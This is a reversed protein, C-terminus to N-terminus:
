AGGTRREHRRQSVALIGVTPWGIALALWYAVLRYVLVAAVTPAAPAGYAVLVVALGGEVLGLGGPAFPLVALIQALGYALFVGRWPIPAAVSRFAALLCLADFFWASAAWFVVTMQGGRSLRVARMEALLRDLRTALDGRPHGTVRRVARLLSTVLRILANRRLLVASAGLVVVLLVVTVALGPAYARTALAVVVGAVLVLCLGVAQAIMLTLISWGAVAPEVGRRRYQRYRYASSVAPEGPVSLAIADNALTLLYLWGLNHRAGSALVRRQALSFALLSAGEAAVALLAFPLSMSAFRSLAGALEGHGSVLLELVVAGVVVGIVGRLWGQRHKIAPPTM